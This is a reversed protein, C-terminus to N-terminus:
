VYKDIKQNEDSEEIIGNKNYVISVIEHVTEFKSVTIRNDNGLVEHQITKTIINKEGGYIPVISHVVSSIISSM